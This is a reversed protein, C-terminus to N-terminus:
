WSWRRIAGYCALLGFLAAAQLKHNWICGLAGGIGVFELALCGVFIATRLLNM